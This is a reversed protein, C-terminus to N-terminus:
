IEFRNTEGSSTIYEYLKKEDFLKQYIDVVEYYKKQITKAKAKGFAKEFYPQITLFDRQLPSIIFITDDLNFLKNQLDEALDKAQQRGAENLVASGRSDELHHFNYNTQGHRIFM